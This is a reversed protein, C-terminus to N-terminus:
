ADATIDYIFDQVVETYWRSYRPSPRKCTTKMRRFFWPVLGFKKYDILYKHIGDWFRGILMELNVFDYLHGEGEDQKRGVISTRRSDTGM